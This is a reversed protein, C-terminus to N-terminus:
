SEGAAAGEEGAPADVPVPDGSDPDVGLGTETVFIQRLLQRWEAYQNEVSGTLRLTQGEIDILLPTVESDFSAALERLAEVHMKAEKSKAIGSQIAMTGGLIAADSVGSGNEKTAAVVGGLIAVAGLIKRTRAQRRLKRRALEEEYSFKRWSQYSDDMQAYFNAYYETLTDVFMYDRERIRLVRDMMPDDASPLRAVVTRGKRNVGLYDDFAAPLVDAAFKLESIARLDDVQDHDLKNRAALLDNAIQNYLSQFPLRVIGDKNVRYARPDADQKYKKALWHRGSADAARIELVLKLGTSEVIKGSVAVDVADMGAPVVRVAGWFGTSQLTDMLRVPIYRAESKRVDAYVGEEELEMLLDDEDPLGHDLVQIGVDLLSSEAVEGQAVIAEVMRFKDPKAGELPAALALTVLGAAALRWRAAKM